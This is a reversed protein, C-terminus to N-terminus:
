KTASTWFSFSFPVASRRTPFIGQHVRALSPSADVPVFLDVSHLCFTCNEEGSRAALTLTMKARAIRHSATRWASELNTGQSCLLDAGDDTMVIVVADAVIEARVLLAFNRRLWFALDM